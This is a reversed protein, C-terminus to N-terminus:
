LGRRAALVASATAGLGLAVAALLGLAGAYPVLSVLALALTVLAFRGLVRVPAGQAKSRGQRSEALGLAALALGLPFALVYLGSLLLGLPLGIVSFMLLIALPPVALMLAFGVLMRGMPNSRIAASSRMVLTPFLWLVAVGLIFLAAMTGLLTTLSPGETGVTEQSRFEVTGGVDVGDPVPVSRPGTHRISGMIRAGPRLELEVAAVDLNGAITGSITVKEAALQANGAVRGELSIEGGSATFDGGIAAARGMKVEAATVRADGSIMGNIDLDAAVALLDGGVPGVLRLDFGALIADGSIPAKMDLDFGAAILDGDVPAAVVVKSGAAFLSDEVPTTVHVDEGNRFDAALAPYPLLLLMAVALLSSLRTLSLLPPADQYLYTEVGNDEKIGHRGLGLTSGADPVVASCIRL